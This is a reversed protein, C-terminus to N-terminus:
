VVSKRDPNPKRPEKFHDLPSAFYNTKLHQRLLRFISISQLKWVAEFASIFPCFCLALRGSCIKISTCVLWQQYPWSVVESSRSHFHLELLCTTYKEWLRWQIASSFVTSIGSPKSNPLLLHNTQFNSCSLSENIKGNKESLTSATKVTKPSRSIKNKWVQKWVQIWRHLALNIAFKWQLNVM